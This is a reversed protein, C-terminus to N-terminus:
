RNQPTKPASEPWWSPIQFNVTVSTKDVTLNESKLCDEIRLLALGSTKLTACVKGVKKGKENRIDTMENNNNNDDDINKVIESSLEIPMIRKRIVGTHHTRATLEQGIYCGKHFSVGHMYECNYELPTCKGYPIESVGECIGLEYRHRIYNEISTNDATTTKTNDGIVRFGMLPCRSDRFFFNQFENEDPCFDDCSIAQKQDDYLVGVTENEIVKISIKRRVKYMKLHKALKEKAENDCDILYDGDAKKIIFTDFIIRGQTNLFMCYMSPLCKSKSQGTDLHTIDNTMLGQLFEPAEEGKVQILARSALSCRKIECLRSTTSLQKKLMVVSKTQHLFKLRSPNLFTMAFLQSM